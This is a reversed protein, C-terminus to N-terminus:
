NSAQGRQSFLRRGSRLKRSTIQAIQGAAWRTEPNAFGKHRWYFPGRQGQICKTKAPMSLSLM